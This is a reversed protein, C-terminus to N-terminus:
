LRHHTMNDAQRQLFEQMLTSPALHTACPVGTTRQDLQSFHPQITSLIPQPPQAESTMQTTSQCPLQTSQNGM